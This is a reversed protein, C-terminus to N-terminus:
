IWCQFINSSIKFPTFFFTIAIAAEMSKMKKGISKDNIARENGGIRTERVWGNLITYNTREPVRSVEVM